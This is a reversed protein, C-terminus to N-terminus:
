RARRESSFRHHGDSEVSHGTTSESHGALREEVAADPEDLADLVAGGADGREQLLGAVVQGTSLLFAVIGLLADSLGEAVCPGECVCLVVEGSDLGPQGRHLFVDVVSCRGFGCRLARRAPQRHLRHSRVPRRETHSGVRGPGRAGGSREGGSTAFRTVKGWTSESRVKGDCWGFLPPAVRVPPHTIPILFPM